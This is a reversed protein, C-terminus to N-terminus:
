RPDRRESLWARAQSEGSGPVRVLDVREAEGAAPVHEVPQRGSEFSTRDGDSEDIEQRPELRGAGDCDGVPSCRLGLRRCLATLAAESSVSGFAVVHRRAGEWWARVVSALGIGIALAVVIFFSRDHVVGDLGATLPVASLSWRGLWRWRQRPDLAAAELSDICM